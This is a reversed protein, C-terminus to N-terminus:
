DVLDELELPETPPVYRTYRDVIDAISLPTLRESSDSLQDIRWWRFRDLTMAELEDSMVPDFRDAHVIHYVETQCLRRGAWNFTHRRRWVPPGFEFTELGLEELLERRLGSEPDEGEILGGGPTIWFPAGGDPPNIRMLLVEQEPTIIIARVAYRVVYESEAM